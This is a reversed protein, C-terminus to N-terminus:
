RRAPDALQVDFDVPIYQAIDPALAKLAAIVVAGLDAVRLLIQGSGSHTLAEHVQLAAAEVIPTFVSSRVLSVLVSEIAPRIAVLNEDLNIVQDSIAVGVLQAVHTDSRVADAHAALRSGDLVERNVVGALVGVALLLSALVTLGRITVTRM